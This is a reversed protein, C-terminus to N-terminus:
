KKSPEYYPNSGSAHDTADVIDEVDPLERRISGEIGQRLTVDAMGCGQCGGGMKIFVKADKVDLLEVFGGHTALAPNIQLDFLDQVKSRISEDPLRTEKLEGTVAPAGSRLHARLLEAARAAVPRWNEPTKKTLTVDSGAVKVMTVDEIGFLAAALPSVEASAKDKFRASGEYVKRDASLRCQDPRHPDIHATIKIEDM